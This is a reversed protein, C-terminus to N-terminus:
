MYEDKYEMRCYFKSLKVSFIISPILFVMCWGLSFWFANLSDVLQSCFINEVTNVTIAITGCRGVEETITKNAWEALETFVVIQCDIFETLKLKVTQTLNNNLVDQASSVKELVDKVTSNVHLLLNTFRKTQSDLEMLQSSITSNFHSQLFRLDKAENQLEAKVTANTKWETSSINVSSATSSFSSIQEKMESDLLVISPLTINSKELVEQVQGTYKSVNLYNNLDIIDELHLTNWLSKNMQCNKYVESITLNIKLGLSQSLQFGPIVGPTDILKQIQANLDTKEAQDVVLQLTSFSSLNISSVLSLKNLESQLFVCKICGPSNLTKNIRTKVGTLNSQLLDLEKQTANLASLFLSTNQVIQAMLAVSDLAPNISGEIRRQIEGGLLPGIGKINNTVNDVVVISENVVQDIQEPITTIFSQVNKLTSNFESPVSQVTEHTYANSLFMCINGALILITILSTTWYFSRRRCNISNTQKQYM